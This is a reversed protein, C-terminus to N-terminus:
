AHSNALVSARPVIGRGRASHFISSRNGTLWGSISVAWKSERQPLFQLSRSSSSGEATISYRTEISLIVYIVTFFIQMRNAEKRNLKSTLIM